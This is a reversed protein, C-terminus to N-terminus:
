TLPLPHEGPTNLSLIDELVTSRWAKGLQGGLADDGVRGSYVAVFREVTGIIESGIKSEDDFGFIGTQRIVVPSGSMGKRTASDIFYPRDLYPEAAISGRKWIPTLAAGSLGEPFGLIFCDMGVEAELRGEQEIENIYMNAFGDAEVFPIAVVDVTMRSSYEFWTPRGGSMIELDMPRSTVSNKEKDAWIKYHVRVLNPILGKSHLPALTEFHLGTVNHWNTILFSQGHWRIFFGTGIAGAIDRESTRRLMEIRAVSLSFKNM